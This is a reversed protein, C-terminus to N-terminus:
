IPARALCKRPDINAEAIRPDVLGANATLQSAFETLNRRACDIQAKNDALWEAGHDSSADSMFKLTSQDIMENRVCPRRERAHFVAISCFLFMFIDLSYTWKGLHEFM